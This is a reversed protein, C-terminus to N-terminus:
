EKEKIIYKEQEESQLSAAMQEDAEIMAQIDDLEKDITAKSAEEQAASEKQLREFEAHLRLALEEDIQIQDKKNLPKEPETM